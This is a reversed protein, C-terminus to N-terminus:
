YVMTITHITGKQPVAGKEHLGLREQQEEVMGGPGEREGRQGLLKQDKCAMAVAVVEISRNEGKSGM